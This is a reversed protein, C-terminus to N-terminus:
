YPVCRHGENWVDADRGGGAGCLFHRIVAYKIIDCVFWGILDNSDVKVGFKMTSNCICIANKSSRIM